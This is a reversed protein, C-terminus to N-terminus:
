YSRPYVYGDMLKRATRVIGARVVEGGKMEVLADFSGTPHELTVIPSGSDLVAIENAPSGELLAATAVSVAGLV